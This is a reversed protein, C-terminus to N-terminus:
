ITNIIKKIFLLLDSAIIGVQGEKAVIDGALAHVFVGFNCADKFNLKQGVLAAIIGALLDGMGATAMGPNGLDCLYIPSYTDDSRYEKILTGAGKLVVTAKYKNVLQNIAAFRDAEITATDTNLLKAAEKPHPTLILKEKPKITNIIANYSDALINLGDADIILPLNSEMAQEFFTHAYRDTGMGSGLLLVTAKSLLDKLQKLDSFNQIQLELCNNNTITSQKANTLIYVMGIGTRLAANGALLPAGIMGDQGGMILLKGFNGKHAAPERIPLMNKFINKTLRIAKCPYKNYIELPLGLNNFKIKGTYNKAKGTFLGQKLGIFTITISAKVAIGYVNGSDPDIGSPIDISLVPIKSSNIQEVIQRWVGVLDRNIGIGFLADIILDAELNINNNWSTANIIQVTKGSAALQKAVNLGDAANKGVGCFITIKQANPFSELVQEVCVNTAKLMLDNITFKLETTAQNELALITKKDYLSVLLLELEM